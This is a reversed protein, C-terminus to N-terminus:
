SAMPHKSIVDLKRAVNRGLIARIMEADASPDNDLAALLDDVEARQTYSALDRELARYDARAQRRQRLEDRVASLAPFRRTTTTTNTNTSINKM